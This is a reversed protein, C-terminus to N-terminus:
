KQTGKIGHSVRHSFFWFRTGSDTQRCITKLKFKLGITEVFVILYENSLGSQAQNSLRSLGSQPQFSFIM